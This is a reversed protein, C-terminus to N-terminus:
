GEVAEKQEIGKNSFTQSILLRVSEPTAELNRQKERAQRIMRIFHSEMVNTNETSMAWDRLVRPNGVAMQCIEPLKDFEEQAHYASNCAAKMLLSAMEMDTGEDLHRVMQIKDIIQGPTPPFGSADQRLFVTLGGNVQEYSYDKFIAEWVMVQEAIDEETWGKYHNLYCAKVIKIIKGTEARTM